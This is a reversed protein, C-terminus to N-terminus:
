EEEEGRSERRSDGRSEGRSKEAREEARVVESVRGRSDLRVNLGLDELKHGLGLAVNKIVLNQDIGQSSGRLCTLAYLAAHLLRLLRYFDEKATYWV